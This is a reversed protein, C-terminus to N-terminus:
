GVFAMPAPSQPNGKSAKMEASGPKPQTCVTGEAPLTLDILYADVKERICVNDPRYSVHGYGDFTLLRADDLEDTLGKAWEYPTQSDKTGGVVLITADSNNAFPGVYPDSPYDLYACELGQFVYLSAFDPALEFREQYVADWAAPDDPFEEDNCVTILFAADSFEPLSSGNGTPLLPTADGKEFAALAALLDPWGKPSGGMFSRTFATLNQGDFRADESGVKFLLPKQNLRQVLARYAGLPDGKGFPCGDGSTKCFEFVDFLIHNASATQELTVSIPDSAFQSPALAGDLALARVNQPFLAAYTAGLYTGYSFGLFSLKEDGLAKRLEDMDTAVNKTTVSQLFEVNENSICAQANRAKNGILIARQRPSLVPASGTAAARADLYASVSAANNDYVRASASGADSKPDCTVGNSRIVGRPDFGVLDFRDLIADSFAGPVGISQILFTVPSGGPGGNNLLLSGIRQSPQRARHRVVAVDFRGSTPEAYNVPLSLTACELGGPACPSWSLSSLAPTSSASLAPRQISVSGKAEAIMPQATSLGILAVTTVAVSTLGSPLFRM